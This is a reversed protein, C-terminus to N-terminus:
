TKILRRHHGYLGSLLVFVTFAQIMYRATNFAAPFNQELSCFNLKFDSNFINGFSWNCINNTGNLGNFFANVFDVAWTLPWILFGFKTNIFEKFDNFYDKLFGPTPVFLTIFLSRLLVGFNRMVCGIGGILDTGFTSCDEFPSPPECLGGNECNLDDSDLIYSSGDIKLPFIRELKLNYFDSIKAAPADCDYALMGIAYDTGYERARMEAPANSALYDTEDIVEWDALNDSTSSGKKVLTSAWKWCKGGTDVPKPTVLINKDDVNLFYPIYFDPKPSYSAPIQPGSYDSPYTLNDTAVLLLKNISFPIYLTNTASYNWFQYRCGSNPNLFYDVYKINNNAEMYGNKVEFQINSDFLYIRIMKHFDNPTVDWSNSEWMPVQTVAWGTTDGNDIKQQFEGFFADLKSRGNDYNSQYNWSNKYDYEGGLANWHTSLDVQTCTGASDTGGIKLSDTLRVGYDSAANASVAFLLASSVSSFLLLSALLIRKIM